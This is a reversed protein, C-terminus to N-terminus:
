ISADLYEMIEFYFMDGAYLGDEEIKDYMMALLPYTTNIAANIFKNDEESIDINNSADETIKTVHYIFEDTDCSSTMYNIAELMNLESKILQTFTFTPDFLEVYIDPDIEVYNNVIIENIKHQLFLCTVAILTIDKKTVVYTHLYRNFLDIAAIFTSPKLRLEISADILRHIITYYLSLGINTDEELSGLTLQKNSGPCVKVNPFLSVINVRDDPNIELMSTMLKIINPPIQNYFQSQYAFLGRIDIHDHISLSMFKDFNNKDMNLPKSLKPLIEYIISHLGNGDAARHSLVGPETFTKNLYYEVFTVGMAWIDIKENHYSQEALVEPARFLPTTVDYSLEINRYNIVCPLQVSHGFDSLYVQPEKLLVNEGKKLEYDILINEPKIDRHIIGKASLQLLGNLLQDIIIKGYKLRETFSFNEIFSKLDSTHYPLMIRVIPNNNSLLSEVDLLQIIHPCGVLKSLVHLERLAGSDVDNYDNPFFNKVAVFNLNTTRKGHLDPFQIGPTGELIHLDVTGQVGKGITKRRISVDRFVNLVDKTSEM